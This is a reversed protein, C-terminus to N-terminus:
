VMRLHKDHGDFVIRQQFAEPRRSSQVRMSTGQVWFQKLERYAATIRSALTSNLIIPVEPRSTELDCQRAATVAVSASKVIPFLPKSQARHLIQELHASAVKPHPWHARHAGQWERLTQGGLRELQLRRTRRSEYPRSAMMLAEGRYPPKLAPFLLGPPVGFGHSFLLAEIRGTEPLGSRVRRLCLWAHAGGVSVHCPCTLQDTYGLSCPAAITRQRVPHINGEVSKKDRSNGLKFVDELVTSLLKASPEICLTSKPCQRFCSPVRSIHEAYVHVALLARATDRPFLIRRVDRWAQGMRSIAAGLFLGCDILDRTGQMAHCSGTVRTLSGHHFMKLYRM